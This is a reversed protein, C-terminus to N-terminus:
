LIVLVVRINAEAGAFEAAISTSIPVRDTFVSSTVEKSGELASINKELMERTPNNSRAYEYGNHEGVGRQAYTTSMYIPPAVCGALPEPKYGEHIVQTALKRM